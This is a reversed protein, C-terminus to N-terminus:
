KGKKRKPGTLVNKDFQAQRKAKPGYGGKLAKQLKGKPIPKGAPTGTSRHLGGPKFSIPAQGKRTPRLTKRKPQKTAM